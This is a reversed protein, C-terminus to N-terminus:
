LRLFLTKRSDTQALGTFISGKAQKRSTSPRIASRGTVPETFKQWATPSEDIASSTTAFSLHGNQLQTLTLPRWDKSTLHGPSKTLGSVTLPSNVDPHNTRRPTATPVTMAPRGGCLDTCASRRDPLVIARLPSRIIGVNGDGGRFNRVAPKGRYPKLAPFKLRPRGLVQNAMARRARQQWRSERRQTLSSASTFCRRALPSLREVGPARAGSRTISDWDM